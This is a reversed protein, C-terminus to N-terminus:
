SEDFFYGGLSMEFFVFFGLPIVSVSFLYIFVYKGFRQLLPDRRGEKFSPQVEIVGSM